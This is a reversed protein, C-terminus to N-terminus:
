NCVVATRVKYTAGDGKFTVNLAQERLRGLTGNNLTPSNFPVTQDTAAFVFVHHEIIDDADFFSEVATWFSTDASNKVNKIAQEIDEKAKNPNNRDLIGGEVLHKTEQEVARKLGNMMDRITGWPTSDSEVAIALAGVVEAREGQLIENLSLRNVNQFSVRGMDAPINKKSGDDVGEAWEDDLAGSWFASTSNPTNFRSRFGIVIFYPEDGDSWFDEEQADSVHLRELRIQWNSCNGNARVVSIPDFLLISLIILCIHVVKRIKM